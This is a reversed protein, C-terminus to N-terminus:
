KIATPRLVFKGRLAHKEGEDLLARAQDLLREGSVEIKLKGHEVLRTLEDLGAPTSEPTQAVVLNLARIDRARFWREDVANITTVLTGLRALVTAFTKLTEADSVLDILAGVGGPVAAKVARVIEDRDTSEITQQAGPPGNTQGGNHKVTAIVRAGRLAALQTAIAGVAGGAGVLVVSTGAAVAAANLCALATLGPTPLAAAVTDDVGAPIISVPEAPQNEGIVTMDAYGGHTAARGLVRDGVAFRRVGKGIADAVGAFDQGLRTYNTM